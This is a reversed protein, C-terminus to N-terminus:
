DHLSIAPAKQDLIGNDVIIDVYESGPDVDQTCDLSGLDGFVTWRRVYLLSIGHSVLTWKRVCLLRM